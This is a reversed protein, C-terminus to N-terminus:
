GQGHGLRDAFRTVHLRDEFMHAFQLGNEDLGSAHQFVAPPEEDTFQMRKPLVFSGHRIKAATLVGNFNRGKNM